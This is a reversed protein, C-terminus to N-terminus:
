DEKCSGEPNRRTGEYGSDLLFEETLRGPRLLAPDLSDPRNTAALIVFVRSGDFGDMEYAASETDREREDNGGSFGAGDNSVSRISRM